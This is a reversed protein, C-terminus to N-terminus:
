DELDLYDRAQEVTVYTMETEGRDKAAQVAAANRARTTETRAITEARRRVIRAEAQELYRMPERLFPTGYPSRIMREVESKLAQQM